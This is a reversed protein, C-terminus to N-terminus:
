PGAAGGRYGDILLDLKGTEPHIAWWMIDDNYKNTTWDTHHKVFGDYIADIQRKVGADGTRDYQDLVTDWLQASFWFDAKKQGQEEKRFFQTAPDWYAKNLAAFAADAEATTVARAPVTPLLWVLGVAFYLRVFCKPNTLVRSIPM